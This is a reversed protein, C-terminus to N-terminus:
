RPFLGTYGIGIVPARLPGRSSEGLVGFLPMGAAPTDKRKSPKLQLAVAAGALWGLAAGYGMGSYPVQAASRRVGLEILAGVGLGGAGAVNAVIAGMDSMPHLALGLIALTGGVGGGLLGFAWRDRDQRTSAFRGQFILHGAATPWWTGAAFYWADAPGVEWEESALYAAGLGIGAGAITLPVLLRPDNSGSTEEISFGVLGGFAGANAMLTIRGALKKAKTPAAAQAPAVPNPRVLDRFLAVARPVVDARGVTVERKQAGAYVRLTFQEPSSQSLSVHVVLAGPTDIRTRPAAEPDESAAGEPPPVLTFGLDRAADSLTGDITAALPALDADRLFTPILVLKGATPHTTPAPSDPSGRAPAGALVMSLALL